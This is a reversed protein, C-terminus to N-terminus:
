ASRFTVEVDPFHSACYATMQAIGLTNDSHINIRSVRIGREHMYELIELGTRGDGLNYDLSVTEFSMFSLLFKAGEVDRCCEYGVKPVPRRDDVYLNM